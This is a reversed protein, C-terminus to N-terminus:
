STRKASLGARDLAHLGEKVLLGPKTHPETVKSLNERSTITHNSKSRQGNNGVMGDGNIIKPARPPMDNADIEVTQVTPEDPTLAGIRSISAADPRFPNTAHSIKWRIGSNDPDIFEVSLVGKPLQDRIQRMLEQTKTPGTENTSIIEGRARM